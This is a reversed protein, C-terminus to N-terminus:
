NAYWNVIGFALNQFLSQFYRTIEENRLHVIPVKSYFFSKGPVNDKQTKKALYSIQRLVEYLNNYTTSNRDIMIGNRLNDNCENIEGYSGCYNRLVIRANEFHQYSNNTKNGDLFLAMHHHIRKGFSIERAVIYLPDYGAIKEKEIFRHNFDSIVQLVLEQPIHVDMRLVFVKCHKQLAQILLNYYINQIRVSMEYDLFVNKNSNILHPM